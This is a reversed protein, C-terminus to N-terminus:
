QYSCTSPKWSRGGHTDVEIMRGSVLRLVKDIRTSRRFYTDYKTKSRLMVHMKHLMQVKLVPLDKFLLVLVLWTWINAFDRPILRPLTVTVVPSSNVMLSSVGDLGELPTRIRGTGVAGLAVDNLM